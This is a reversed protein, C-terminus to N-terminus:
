GKVVLGFEGCADQLWIWCYDSFSRRIILEFQQEGTRRIVAQAKGFLSTVVKGVQMNSIHIDYPTCKKLMEEVDAGEVTLLTQGGSVNVIAIHSDIAERLKQELEFGGGHPATVLWEDPSVWRIVMGDNEASQLNGPLALGAVSELGAKLSADTANGRIVLHDLLAIEQVTIGGDQPGKEALTALDAHYLSSEARVSSDAPIQNMQRVITNEAIVESM